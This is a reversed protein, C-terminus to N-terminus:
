TFLSNVSENNNIRRIVEALLIDVSLVTIKSTAKPYKKYVMEPIQITDTIIIEEFVDPQNEFNEFAKGSLVGHTACARVTSAGNEKLAIAGKLLTGGTDIMDDVIIADKGKVDGIVNMVESENAKERRKDIVALGNFEAKKAFYRARAVGGADPSVVIPNDLNGNLSKIYKIFSFTGYLNDVPINFFGQIQAAHLDIVIVRDAGATEIIDAVLKASIPVRPESKRDQRAYGFYPIIVNITKASGRKLADIILLLEMLNDNTPYCTSQVIFCVEGRVSENIKVFSEGDSFKKKTIDTLSLTMDLRDVIKEALPENSSGSIIKYM